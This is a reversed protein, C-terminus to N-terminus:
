QRNRIMRTIQENGYQKAVITSISEFNEENVEFYSITGDNKYYVFYFNEENQIFSNYTRFPITDIFLKHKLENLFWNISEYQSYNPELELKGSEVLERFTAKLKNNINNM